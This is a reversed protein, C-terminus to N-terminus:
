DSATIRAAAMLLIVISKNDLLHLITNRETDTLQQNNMIAKTAMEWDKGNRGKDAFSLAQRVARAVIVTRNVDDDSVTKVSVNTEKTSM